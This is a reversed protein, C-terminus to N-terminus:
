RQNRNPPNNNNRNSPRNNNNRDQQPAMRRMNNVLERSFKADAEQYKHLKEPRIIQKFKEFYEKEVQAEKIRNDLYCDILKLYEADTMKQKNQSERALNRCERGVEFQKQKFENELPIFKKEEDATLGIEAKIFANRKEWFDNGLGPRNDRQQGQALGDVINLFVVVLFTLLFTKKM